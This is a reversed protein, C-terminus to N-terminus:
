RRYIKALWEPSMGLRYGIAFLWNRCTLRIPGRERWRRADVVIPGPLLAPSGVGGIRRSIEFDEMLSIDPFGGVSEFLERSVFFGQDGYILHQWRARFYNGREIWRYVWGPAEIRQHFGGYFKVLHNPDCKGFEDLLQSKAIKPLSTDAHLFLLVDGTALESGANLQQGRGLESSIFQCNLSKALEISDDTSGGDVVIVEDGVQWAQEVAVTLRKAENIIPIIVSITAM